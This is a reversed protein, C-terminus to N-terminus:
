SYLHNLALYANNHRFVASLMIDKSMSKFLVDSTANGLIPNVVFEINGLFITTTFFM